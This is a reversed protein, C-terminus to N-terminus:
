TEECFNDHKGIQQTERGFNIILLINIEVVIGFDMISDAMYCFSTICVTHSFLRSLSLFFFLGFGGFFLFLYSFNKEKQCLMEMM